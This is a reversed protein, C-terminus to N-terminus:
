LVLVWDQLRPAGPQILRTIVLIVCELGGFLQCHDLQTTPLTKFFFFVYFLFFFFCRVKVTRTFIFRCNSTTLSPSRFVAHKGLVTSSVFNDLLGREPQIKLKRAEYSFGEQFHYWKVNVWVSCLLILIRVTTDDGQLSLDCYAPSFFSVHLFSMM